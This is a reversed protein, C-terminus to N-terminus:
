RASAQNRLRAAALENFLDLEVASVAWFALGFQEEASIDPLKPAAASVV